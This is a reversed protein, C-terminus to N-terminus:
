LSRLLKVEFSGDVSGGPVFDQKRCRRIEERRDVEVSLNIGSQERWSTVDATRIEWLGIADVAESTWGRHVTKPQSFCCSRQDQQWDEGAKQKVSELEVKKATRHSSM